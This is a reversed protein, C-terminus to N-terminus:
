SRAAAQGHQASSVLGLKLASAVVEARRKAGLRLMIKAVHDKVTHPSRCVSAAIERNSHGQCLLEIIKLDNASLGLKEASARLVADQVQRLAESSSVSDGADERALGAIRAYLNM